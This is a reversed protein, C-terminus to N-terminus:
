FFKKKPILIKQRNIIYYNIKKKKNYVAIAEDGKENSLEYNM